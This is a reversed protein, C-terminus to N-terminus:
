RVCVRVRVCLGLNMEVRRPGWTVIEPRLGFTDDVINLSLDIRYKNCEDRQHEWALFVSVGM